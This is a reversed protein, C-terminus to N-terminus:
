PSTIDPDRPVYYPWLTDETHEHRPNDLSQGSYYLKERVLAEKALRRGEQEQEKTWAM